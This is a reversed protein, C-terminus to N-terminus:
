ISRKYLACKRYAHFCRFVFSVLHGVLSCQILEYKRGSRALWNRAEDNIINVGPKETLNGVFDAYKRRLMHVIAPNVEIGDIRQQGFLLGTLIDRGGGVGIVFLSKAPRLFNGVATIDRKIPELQDPTASGSTMVTFAGFDIWIGKQAVEVPNTIPVKAWSIAPGKYSAVVVRGVPSWKVYDILGNCGSIEIPARPLYFASLCFIFILVGCFYTKLWGYKKTDLSFFLSASAAMLGSFTLINQGDTVSLGAVLLPCALAAGILDASYLKGIDRFRSLCTSVCIGSFYFPISFLIFSVVIWLLPSVQLLAQNFLSYIGFTLVTSIAFFCANTALFQMTAQLDLKQKVLVALAGLTMGFMTMSVIMFAFHYGATVSFIRTLILELLVTAMAILGLGIRLFMNSPVLDSNVM